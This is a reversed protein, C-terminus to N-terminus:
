FPVSGGRLSSNTAGFLGEPAPHYLWAHLMWASKAVFTEGAGDCEDRDVHRTRLM